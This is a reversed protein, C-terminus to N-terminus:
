SKIKFNHKRLLYHPFPFLIHFLLLSVIVWLFVAFFQFKSPMILKFIFVICLVQQKKWNNVYEYQAKYLATYLNQQFEEEALLSESSILHSLYVISVIKWLCSFESCQGRREGKKYDYKYANLASAFRKCM